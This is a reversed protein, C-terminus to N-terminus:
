WSRNCALNCFSNDYTKGLSSATKLMGVIATSRGGGIQLGFLAVRGPAVSVFSFSQPM